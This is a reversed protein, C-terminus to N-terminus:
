YRRIGISAYSECLKRTPVLSVHKRGDLVYAEPVLAKVVILMFNETAEFVRQVDEGVYQFVVAVSSYQRQFICM